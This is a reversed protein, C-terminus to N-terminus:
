SIRRNLYKLDHNVIICYINAFIVSLFYFNLSMSPNKQLLKRFLGAMVQLKAFVLFVWEILQASNLM